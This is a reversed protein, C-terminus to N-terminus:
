VKYSALHEIRACGNQEGDLINFGMGLGVELAGNEPNYNRITTRVTIFETDETEKYKGLHKMVTTCNEYEKKNLKVSVTENVISVIIGDM